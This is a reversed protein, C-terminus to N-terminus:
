FILTGLLISWFEMEGWGPHHAFIPGSVKRGRRHVGRDFGLSIAAAIERVLLDEV